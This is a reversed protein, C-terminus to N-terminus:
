FSSCLNQVSNTLLGFLWCHICHWEEVCSVLNQSIGSKLITMVTINCDDDNVLDFILSTKHEKALQLLQDFSPIKQERALAKDKESLSSM